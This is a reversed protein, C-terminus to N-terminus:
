EGMLFTPPLIVLSALAVRLLLLATSDPALGAAVRVHLPDFARIAWAGAVATAAVGLELLGYLRLPNRTRDALRGLAWGGLALGGLFTALVATVAHATVGFVQNLLRSWVVQYVLGAAGSLFFLLNVAISHRGRM